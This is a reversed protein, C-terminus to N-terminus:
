RMLIMKHSKTGSPTELRIFYTGSPLEGADFQTEHFGPSQIRDVLQSVPQGSLDWVSLGIQSLETVAYSITTNTSFPNPFNGMLTVGGPQEAGMGIKIMGSLKEAGGAFVQRLRYYAVGAGGAPERYEYATEDSTAPITRIPEFTLGDQSREVVFEMTEADQTRWHLIVTGDEREAQFGRVPKQFSLDSRTIRVGHLPERLLDPSIGADFTMHLTEPSATSAPSTTTSGSGIRLEDLYGSYSSTGDFYSDEGPVRGGLAAALETEIAMPSASYLSDVTEEDVRLRMWGSEPENIVNIHHWSGDAVPRASGISQHEGPRGRFARLRGTPDSVIELPYSRERAGDWTSFVVENLGTSKMWFSLSFPEQLDVPPHTQERLLLPQSEDSTFSLVRNQPDEPAKTNQISFTLRDAHLLNPPDDDGPRIFPTVIVSESGFMAAGSGLELVLDARQELREDAAIRFRSGDLEQVELGITHYGNKVIVASQLMWGSPMEVQFGDVAPAGSWTAFVNASEGQEVSEPAYSRTFQGYAPQSFIIGAALICVSIGAVFAGRRTSLM